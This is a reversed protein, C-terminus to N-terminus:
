QVIVPTGIRVRSYLDIVDELQTLAVAHSRHKHRIAPNEGLPGIDGKAFQWVFVRMGKIYTTMYAM